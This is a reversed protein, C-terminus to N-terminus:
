TPNEHREAAAIVDSQGYHNVTHCHSCELHGSKAKWQSYTIEFTEKCSLCRLPIPDNPEM